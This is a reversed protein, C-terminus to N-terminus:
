IHMKDFCITYTPIEYSAMALGALWPPLAIRFAPYFVGAAIPIGLANYGLNPQLCSLRAVHVM